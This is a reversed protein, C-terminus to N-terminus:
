ASGSDARAARRLEHLTGVGGQSGVLTEVNLSHAEIAHLVDRCWAPVQRAAGPTFLESVFLLREEPLYVVLMGDAHVTEIPSVIVVRHEDVFFKREQQVAEIVAVRQRRHLADPVQTHLAQFADHLLQVNLASTVVTAEISVYTRLGGAQEGHFHTNIVYRVPKTPFRNRLTDLVALSHRDDQPAEVVILYDGMEVALSHYRGGLIQVVGPALERLTIDSPRTDVSLGQALRRLVWHSSHEGREGQWGDTPEVPFDIDDPIAFDVSALDVDNEIADVHEVMVVRGNVRYTWEFPLRLKGVQRWDDFFVENQVDGYLPDDEVFVVKTLLRTEADIALVVLQDNDTFSVVVQRRDHIIQDMLRLFSDARSLAHILVSVPSRRLEKHRAAVRVSSMARQPPSDFGDAGLVAGDLGSIVETYEWTHNYPYVLRRRWEYRLRGTELDRYLVCRFESVKPPAAGPRPSLDPEFNEGHSVIRQSKLDLLSSRDGIALVASNVFVKAPQAIAPTAWALGAQLLVLVAGRRARGGSTPRPTLTKHQM